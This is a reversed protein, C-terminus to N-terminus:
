QNQKWILITIVMNTENNTGTFLQGHYTVGDREVTMEGKPSTLVQHVFGEPKQYAALEACVWFGLCGGLALSVLLRM